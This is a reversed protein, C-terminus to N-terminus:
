PCVSSPLVQPRSACDSSATGGPAGRARVASAGEGTRSLFGLVFARPPGCEPPSHPCRPVGPDGARGGAGASVSSAAVAATPTGGPRSSRGHSRLRTGPGAGGM